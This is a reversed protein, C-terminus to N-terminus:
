ESEAAIVLLGIGVGALVTPIVPLRGTRTPWTYQWISM